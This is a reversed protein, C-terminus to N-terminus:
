FGSAWRVIHGILVARMSALSTTHDADALYLYEIGARGRLTPHMDWFQREYNYTGLQGATFVVSVRLGRDLLRRYGAEAEEKPPIQRVALGADEVEEYEGALRKLVRYTIHYEGRVARRWTSLRRLPNMWRRFRFRPTEYPYPDLLVVGRVRTDLLAVQFAQDAGSCLGILVYGSSLGSADLWDM